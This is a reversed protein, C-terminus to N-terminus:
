SCIQTNIFALLGAVLAARTSVRSCTSTAATRRRRPGLSDLAPVGVASFHRRIWWRAAKGCTSAWPRLVKPPKLRSCEAMAPSQEMLSPSLGRRHGPQVRLHPQHASRRVHLAAEAPGLRFTSTRRPRAAVVNDRGLACWAWTSPRRRATTGAHLALISAGSRTTGYRQPEVGACTARSGRNCSTTAREQPRDSRRGHAAIRAHLGGGRWECHARDLGTVHSQRSEDSTFLVELRRRMLAALGCPVPFTCCSSAAGEHRLLRGRSATRM